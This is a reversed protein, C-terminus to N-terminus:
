AFGLRNLFVNIREYADRVIRAVEEPDDIEEFNAILVSKAAEVSQATYDRRTVM